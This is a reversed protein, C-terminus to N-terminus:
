EYRLAAMPSLKAAQMAPWLGFIVGVMVSFIFALTISGMSIVSSWGALVSILFSIGSGILIGLVGGIGCIMVAEVLFQVLIDGNQAGLAKRLGIEHTREMVTVLLINMIGIGGVFLSVAAIAGLLYTFTATTQGALKQIDAMNRIDFSDTQSDNLRHLKMLINTINDQVDTMSQEDVTQVDFYSIYDTGLLRYMATTVPVVIRDDSNDFGGVGKSIMVGIVTFEIRNIRIQKGLPNADGFLETAVTPGLVAVKARSQEESDTFFRGIEAPASRVIQFDPSTGVISTNWNRSAFVAQARGQVYPVAYKVNEIRKIANLDDFTFRTPSSSGLSIGGPRFNARVMLLNTGLSALNQQVQQQAGTGIALMAVVAAVGILVGLISLFSRLKNAALAQVAEFSYNRMELLSLFNKRPQHVLEPMRAGGNLDTMKKEDSVVKGDSLRIIRSAMAALDPEHTVMIITKGQQNMQRFLNMIELASKSDLNGTPEDALIVPPDNALARAFAVRQQQGGSLENPRHRLRDGLGVKKLLEVVGEQKRKAPTPCYVFPLLSNEVINLRPLLNFMQFVFGFFQNRLCAYDNDKLGTIEKGTLFYKGSDPQDLLGLIALLTSKGSGSPGTIAVFEGPEIKLSTKDLAPVPVKGGILYTRSIDKIEILPVTM